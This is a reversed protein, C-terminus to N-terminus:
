VATPRIVTFNPRYTEVTRPEDDTGVAVHEGVPVDHGVAAVWLRVRDPQRHGVLCVRAEGVDHGRGLLAVDPQDLYPGQYGRIKILGIDREQSTAVIDAFRANAQDAMTVWITDPQPHGSDTVVHWNTLMYGDASIVFGTGNFYDRGFKVTILGVATQNQQAISAFDTGRIARMRADLNASQM